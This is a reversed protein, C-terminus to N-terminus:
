FTLNLFNEIIQPQAKMARGISQAIGGSFQGGFGHNLLESISTAVKNKTPHGWYNGGSLGSVRAVSLSQASIGSVKNSPVTAFAYSFNRFSSTSVGNTGVRIGPLNSMAGPSRYIMDWLMPIQANDNWNTKCQVVWLTENQLNARLASDIQEISLLDKATAVRQLLAPPVSYVFIDSETNTQRNQITVCVADRLVKPVWAQKSTTVLVGSGFASLNLYWVLLREWMAGGGSVSSQSRGPVAAGRFALSLVDGLGHVEAPSPNPGLHKRFFPEIMPWTQTVSDISMLDHLTRVRFEDIQHM